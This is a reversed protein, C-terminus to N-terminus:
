RNSYAVYNNYSKDQFQRNIDDLVSQFYQKTQEISNQISNTMIELSSPLETPRDESINCYSDTCVMQMKAAQRAASLQTPYLSVGENKDVFIVLSIAILIIAAAIITISTNNKPNNM